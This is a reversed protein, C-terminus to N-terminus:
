MRNLSWDYDTYKVKLKGGLVAARDTASVYPAIFKEVSGSKGVFDGKFWDFLPSLYLRGNARDIRNKSADGMFIKGQENLQADIKDGRYAENRLSPCGGSACNIAFHARPDGYNKRIMEHEIQDLTYTGGFVRVVKMKWPGKFGGIKKISKLPYHDIVLKLTAANYVNILFALEQKDDWSKFDSQAVESVSDLYSGLSGQDRKLGAYDIKKNAVYKRLVADLKSHRHDFAQAVSTVVMLGVLAAVWIPTFSHKM